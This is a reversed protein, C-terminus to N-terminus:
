KLYKKLHSILFPNQWTINRWNGIRDSRSSYAPGGCTGTSRRNHEKMLGLLKATARCFCTGKRLFMLGVMEANFDHKPTRGSNRLPGGSGQTQGSFSLTKGFTLSINKLTRRQHPMTFTMSYQM